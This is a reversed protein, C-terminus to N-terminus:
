KLILLSWHIISSFILKIQTFTESCKAYVLIDSIGFDNVFLYFMWRAWNDQLLMNISLKRKGLGLFDDVIRDNMVYDLALM